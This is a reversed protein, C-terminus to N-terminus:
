VKHSDASPSRAHAATSLFATHKGNMKARPSSPNLGSCLRMFPRSV